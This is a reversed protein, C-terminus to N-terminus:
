DKAVPRGVIQLERLDPPVTEATPAELQAGLADFVRTFFSRAAVAFVINAIDGDSLGVARLINVDTQEVSAADVAVKAAFEYVAADQPRLAAGTPEVAISRM